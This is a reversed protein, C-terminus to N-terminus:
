KELLADVLGRWNESFVESSYGTVIAERTDFSSADALVEGIAEIFRQPHISRVVGGFRAPDQSFPYAAQSVVIPLDCSLAELISLNFGEYRSPLFFFDAASYWLPMSSHPVRELVQINPEIPVYSGLVVFLIDQMARAVDLLIDFGKAYETRGVFLGIRGELPLGLKKRAVSKDVRRFLTTDVGNPIIRGSLGYFEEMEHLVPGSVAVVEKGIGAIRDFLATVRGTTFQDGRLHLANQALGAMTFHYVLVMPIRTPWISLPWGYLGNAVVIDFPRTKHRRLFSRTVRLARYPHELGIRDLRWRPGYRNRPSYAFIEVEGLVEQLQHNFTEVGGVYEPGEYTTLIAVRTSRSTM